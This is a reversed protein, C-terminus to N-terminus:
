KNCNNSYISVYKVNTKFINYEIQIEPNLRSGLCGQNELPEIVVMIQIFTEYTKKLTEKIVFNLWRVHTIFDTLRLITKLKLMEEIIM